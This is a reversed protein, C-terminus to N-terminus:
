VGVVPLHERFGAQGGQRLEVILTKTVRTTGRAIGFPQVLPLEFDHVLLEM